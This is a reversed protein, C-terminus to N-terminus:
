PRSGASVRIWAWFTKWWPAKTQFLDCNGETNKRDCEEYMPSPNGTVYNTKKGPWSALCIDPLRGRGPLRVHWHCETCITKM